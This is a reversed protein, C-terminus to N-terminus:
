KTAPLHTGDKQIVDGDALKGKNGDSFLITGDPQVKNGNSFAKEEKLPTGACDDTVLPKEGWGVLSGEAVVRGDQMVADGDNLQWKKGDKSIVEGDAMVKTGDSLTIEGSAESKEGAKVEWVKNDKRLVGDKVFHVSFKGDWDIMEGDKLSWKTGDASVVSGDKMVKTGDKLTKDDTMETKEGDKVTMMKGNKMAVGDKAAAISAGVMLALLTSYKGFAKM